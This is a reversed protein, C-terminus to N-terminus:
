DIVNQRYNLITTENRDSWSENRDSGMSIKM